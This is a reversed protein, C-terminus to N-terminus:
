EARSWPPVVGNSRAYAIMQGLHEHVHTITFIWLQVGTFQQGFVDMTAGLSAEDVGRMVAELHDFSARMVAITAARDLQRAEYAQVSAYDGAAIGTEAPAATGAITPMFWNDAAIHLFVEGISRVGDAPRWAWDDEPIAEALGVLKTELVALDDLLATMVPADARVSPANAQQAALPTVPVTLLVVISVLKMTRM